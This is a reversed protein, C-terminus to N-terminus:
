MAVQNIYQPNSILTQMMQSMAPDQMLQSMMTADPMGAFMQDMGTLGLGGLGTVGPARAERVPTSRATTNTQTPGSVM